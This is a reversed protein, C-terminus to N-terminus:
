SSVWLYTCLNVYLHEDQYKKKKKISVSCLALKLHVTHNLVNICQSVIVETVSALMEESWLIIMERRHYSCNLDLRKTAKFNIICYQQNYGGREENSGWFKAALKYGSPLPVGSWYEQKSFGM